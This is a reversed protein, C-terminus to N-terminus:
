HQRHLIKKLEYGSEEGWILIELKGEKAATKFLSVAHSDRGPEELDLCVAARSVSAVANEISTLKEGGFTDLYVQHFRNSTCAVFRYQDEGVSRFILKFEDNSLKYIPCSDYNKQKRDAASVEPELTNFTDELMRELKSHQFEPHHEVLKTLKNMAAFVGGNQAPSPCRGALTDFMANKQRKRTPVNQANPALSQCNSTTNSTEYKWELPSLCGTLVFNCVATDYFHERISESALPESTAQAQSKRSRLTSVFILM